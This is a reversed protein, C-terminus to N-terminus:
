KYIISRISINEPVLLLNDGNYYGWYGNKVYWNLKKIGRFFDFTMDDLFVIELLYDIILKEIDRPLTDLIM